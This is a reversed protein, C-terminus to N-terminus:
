IRVRIRRLMYSPRSRWSYSVRKIIGLERLARNDLSYKKAFRNVAAMARRSASMGLKWGESHKAAMVAERKMAKLSAILPAVQLRFATAAHHVARRLAILGKNKESIAKKVVRIDARFETTMPPTVAVSASASPPTQFLVTGCAMCDHQFFHFMQNLYCRTHYTTACCFMKTNSDDPGIPQACLTCDM